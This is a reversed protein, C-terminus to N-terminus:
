VNTFIKERSFGTTMVQACVSHMMVRAGSLFVVAEKMPPDDYYLAHQVYQFAPPTLYRLANLHKRRSARPTTLTQYRGSPTAPRLSESKEGLGMAESSGVLGVKEGLESLESLTSLGSAELPASIESVDSLGSLEQELATLAMADHDDSALYVRVGWQQWSPIEELWAFEAATREGYFLAIDQPARLHNDIWHQIVPRLSAIGSGTAFLLATKNYALGLPYGRGEPASVKLAEGPTLDAFYPALEGVRDILLELGEDKWRSPANAIAYFRAGLEAGEGQTLAVTTYQGASGNVHGLWPSSDLTLLLYRANLPRVKEVVLDWTERAASLPRPAAGIVREILHDLYPNKGDDAYKM